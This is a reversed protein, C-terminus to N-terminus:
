YSSRKVFAIVIIYTLSVTKALEDYQKEAVWVISHRWIRDKRDNERKKKFTYLRACSIIIQYTIDRLPFSLKQLSVTFPILAVFVAVPLSLSLCFCHLFSQLWDVLVYLHLYGSFAVIVFCLGELADFSPTILFLYHCCLRLIYLFVSARM